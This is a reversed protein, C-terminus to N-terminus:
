VEIEEQKCRMIDGFHLGLGFMRADEKSKLLVSEKGLEVRVPFEEQKCLNVWLDPPSMVNGDFTM